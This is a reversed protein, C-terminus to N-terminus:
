KEQVEKGSIHEIIIEYMSVNEGGIEIEDDVMKENPYYKMAFKKLAEMSENFDLIPRCNGFIIVSKVFPAWEEERIVEDGIITFSVKDCKYLAEVKHGKKSSHFYIKNKAEDYFYNLPMGYPYGELGNIAMVGRRSNQLIYKISYDSIINKRKRVERFM